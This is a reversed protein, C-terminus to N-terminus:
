NCYNKQVINTWVNMSIVGEIKIIVQIWQAASVEERRGMGKKWRQKEMKGKRDREEGERRRERQTKRWLSGTKSCWM